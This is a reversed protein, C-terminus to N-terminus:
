IHSKPIWKLINPLDKQWSVCSQQHASLHQTLLRAERQTTPTRQCFFPHWPRRSFYSFFVAARPRYTPPKGRHFSRATDVFIVTGARGPFSLRENVAAKPFLQRMEHDLIPQYRYQISRGVKFNLDPPLCQFPGSDEDVDSLYIGIKVMRRDERDRHWARAGVEKGNPPSLFCSAGDYAVPLGLYREVIALLREDLGWCFIAPHSLLQARTAHIEHRDSGVLSANDRLALTISQADKLFDATNPLGLAELSTICIGTQELEKVINKDNEDLDLSQAAHSKLAHQYRPYLLNNEIFSLDFLRWVVQAPLSAIHDMARVLRRNIKTLIRLSLKVLSPVPTSKLNITM